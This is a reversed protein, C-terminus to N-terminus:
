DEPLYELPDVRVFQDSIDTFLDLPYKHGAGFIILVRDGPEAQMAARSWIVLNRGWWTQMQMAGVPNEVTGMQALTMYAGYHEVHAPENTRRLRAGVSLANMDTMSRARETWDQFDSILSTQAAAEAAALMAGFDMETRYDVAYLREHGLRAALRMGLQQTENVSLSREGARYADYLRNLEAERDPTAEVMIKTPAWRALGDAVAAIEAQRAPALFDDVEPNVLDQGGGSFHFTGLVMIEARPEATQRAEAEFDLGLGLFLAILLLLAARM